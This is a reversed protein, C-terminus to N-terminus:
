SPELGRWTSIVSASTGRTSAFRPRARRRRADCSVLGRRAAAVVLRKGSMGSM